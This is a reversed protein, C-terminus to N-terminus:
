DYFDTWIPKSRDVVDEKTFGFSPLSFIMLTMLLAASKIANVLSSM